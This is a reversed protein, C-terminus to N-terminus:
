VATDVLLGMDRLQLLTTAIFEPLKDRDEASVVDALEQEIAEASAPSKAVRRLIEIASSQILHTDGTVRDYVVALDDDDWSTFTLRAPSVTSWM